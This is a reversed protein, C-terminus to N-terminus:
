VNSDMYVYWKGDKGKQWVLMYKGGYSGSCEGIEFVWNENVPQVMIPKLLLSYEPRNMYSYDETIAARGRVMPKHNYYFADERYLQEVLNAADHANCLKIWEERRQDIEKLISADLTGGSAIMELERLPQEAEMNWILLHYYLARNSTTFQGIEYKYPSDRHTNITTITEIAEIEQNMRKAASVIAEAGYILTADLGIKVAKDYYINEWQNSNVAEAWRENPSLIQKEAPASRETKQCAMLGLLVIPLLYNKM